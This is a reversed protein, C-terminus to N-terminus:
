SPEFMRLSSEALCGMSFCIIIIIIIIIIMMIIIIIIMIIIIFMSVGTLQITEFM